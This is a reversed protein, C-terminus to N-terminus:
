ACPAETADIETTGDRTIALAIPDGGPAIAVAEGGVTVTATRLGLNLRVEDPNRFTQPSTITEEFTVATGPGTDVCVYTADAPTVRVVVGQAAARRRARQRRERQAQRRQAPTPATRPETAVTEGASGGGGGDDEGGTLGLVILLALVAAVIGGAIWRGRRPPRAPPRRLPRRDRPLPGLQHLDQREDEQTQRYAEVIPYPDLGVAEAYTRLFTRVFTPGPLLSWEENELARLYKARIKTREEIEAIDLRQSMRAERLTEGIAPM